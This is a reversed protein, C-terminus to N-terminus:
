GLRWKSFSGKDDKKKGNFYALFLVFLGSFTLQAIMWLMTVNSLIYISFLAMIRPLALVTEFFNLNILVDPYRSSIFYWSIVFWLLFNFIFSYVVARPAIHKIQKFSSLLGSFLSVFAGVIFGIIIIFFLIGSGSGAEAIITDKLIQSYAVDVILFIMLSLGAANLYIRFYDGAKIKQM